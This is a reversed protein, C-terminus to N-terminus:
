LYVEYPVKCFSLFISGSFIQFKLEFVEYPLSLAVSLDVSGNSTMLDSLTIPLHESEAQARKVELGSSARQYRVTSLVGYSSNHIKRTVSRVKDNGLNFGKM